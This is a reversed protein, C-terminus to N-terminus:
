SDAGALARVDPWPAGEVARNSTAAAAWDDNGWAPGLKGSMGYRTVGLYCSAELEAVMRQYSARAAPDIRCGRYNVIAYVGHGLPKVRREVEDRLREVDRESRISLQRLDIFLMKLKPDYSFRAELPGETMRERLGMLGDAFIGPDMPQPAGVIPTFDMHALIDRRIDIGPAVETLELGDPTLRFVCRETVYLVSQGRKLAYDGSFTRHEVEAVFKRVNGERLIQLRGDAVGIELPGATFTGVFVV